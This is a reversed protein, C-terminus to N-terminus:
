KEHLVDDVLEKITKRFFDIYLSSIYDALQIGSYNDNKDVYRAILTTLGNHIDLSTIHPLEHSPIAQLLLSSLHNEDQPYLYGSKDIKIRTIYERIENTVYNKFMSIDKEQIFNNIRKIM